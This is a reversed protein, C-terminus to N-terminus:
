VNRTNGVLKDRLMTTALRHLPAVGFVEIPISAAPMRKDVVALQRFLDFPCRSQSDKVGGRLERFGEKKNADPRM